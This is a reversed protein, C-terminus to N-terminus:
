VSPITSAIFSIFGMTASPGPTTASTRMPSASDTSNSWIRISSRGAPRGRHDAAQEDRVAALDGDADRPGAPFEADLDDGHVRGGVAVGGDDAQGVLRHVDSRGRWPAAVEVHGVDHLRRQPGTGVADVGAVSEQGLVRVEGLDARALPQREHTRRRVDHLAHPVLRRRAPEHGIGPERQQRPDDFRHAGDVLTPLDGAPDAVGHDDLGGRPAASAAHGHHGCRGVELLREDRCPRGGARHEAVRGDVELAIERVGPVHLHLDEAVGVAVADVESLAVARELPPVLLEELLPRGTMEGGALAGVEAAEGDAARQRDAVGAGAGHLEEDVVVPEAKKMSIFARIWTSCGTM